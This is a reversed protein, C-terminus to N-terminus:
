IKIDNIKNSILMLGDIYIYAVLIISILFFANSCLNLLVCGWRIYM